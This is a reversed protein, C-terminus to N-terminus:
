HALERRRRQRHRYFVRALPWLLVGLAGADFSISDVYRCTAPGTPQISVEHDWRRVTSGSEHTTITGTDPHISIVQIRHSGLPLRGFLRSQVEVSAGEIWRDALATGDASTFTLYPASLINLLGIQLEKEWAADASCPLDTELRLRM